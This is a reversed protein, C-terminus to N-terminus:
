TLGRRTLTADTGHLLDCAPAVRALAQNMSSGRCGRHIHRPPGRLCQANSPACPQTLLGVCSNSSVQEVSRGRCYIQFTPFGRIAQQAAYARNEPTAECDVALLAVTGYFRQPLWCRAGRAGVCLWRQKCAHLLSVRQWRWARSGRLLPVEQPRGRRGASHM